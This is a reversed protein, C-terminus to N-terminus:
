GSVRATDLWQQLLVAAAVQDIVGRHGRASVGAARLHQQASVTTLREDVLHVPVTPAARRLTDAFRRAMDASPGSRGALTLPLGVVMGDAEWLNALRALEAVDSGHASDRRLTVLPSALAGTADSKAVGVRVTGVDM